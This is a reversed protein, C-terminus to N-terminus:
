LLAFHQTVIWGRQPDYAVGIGVSNAEARLINARHGPSNMFGDHAAAATRYGMAINEAYLRYKIGAAKAMEHPQGYTPSKHAFYGHDVMDQSKLRALETMQANVQLPELGEAARAENILRVLEQEMARAEDARSDAPPDPQKPPPDPDRRPPEPDAPPPTPEAPPPAPDAPASDPTAAPPSPDAPTPAAQPPELPAAPASEAEPDATRPGAENSSGADRNVGDTRRDVGRRPDSRSVSTRDGQRAALGPASPASVAVDDAPPEATKDRGILMGVTVSGVLVVALLGTVLKRNM